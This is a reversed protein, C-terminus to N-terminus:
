RRPRRLPSVRPATCCDGGPKPGGTKIRVRPKREITHDAVEGAEGDGDGGDRAGFFAHALAMTFHKAAKGYNAM